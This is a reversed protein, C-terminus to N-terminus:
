ISVSANHSRRCNSTHPFQTATVIQDTSMQSLLPTPLTKLQRPM